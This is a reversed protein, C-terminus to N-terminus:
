SACTPSVKRVRNLVLVGPNGYIDRSFRRVGRGPASASVAVRSQKKVPVDAWWYWPSVGIQELVSALGGPLAKRFADDVTIKEAWPIEGATRSSAARLPGLGPHHFDTKPM